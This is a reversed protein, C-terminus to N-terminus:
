VAANEESMGVLLSGAAMGLAGLGALIGPVESGRTGTALIVVTSAVLLLVGLAVKRTDTAM